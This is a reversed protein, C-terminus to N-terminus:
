KGSKLSRGKFAPVNTSVLTGLLCFMKFPRSHSLFLSERKKKRTQTIRISLLKAESSFLLEGALISKQSEGCSAM